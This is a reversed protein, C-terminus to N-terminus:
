GKENSLFHFDGINKIDKSSETWFLRKLLIAYALTAM